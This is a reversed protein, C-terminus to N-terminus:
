ISVSIFDVHILKFRAMLNLFFVKNEKKYKSKKKLQENTPNRAKKPLQNMKIVLDGIYDTIKRSDAEQLVKIRYLVKERGRKDDPLKDSAALRDCLRKKLELNKEIYGYIIEECDEEDAWEELLVQLIWKRSGQRLKRRRADHVKWLLIIIYTVGFVIDAPLNAKGPYGIIELFLYIVLAPM